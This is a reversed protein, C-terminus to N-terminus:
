EEYDSEPTRRALMRAAFERLKAEDLQNAMACKEETGIGPEVAYMVPIVGDAQSGSNAHTASSADEADSAVPNSCASQIHISESM